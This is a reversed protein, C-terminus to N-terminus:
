INEFKLCGVEIFFIFDNLFNLFGTKFLYNKFNISACLVANAPLTENSYESIYLTNKHLYISAEESFKFNKYNDFSFTIKKMIEYDNELNETNLGLFKDSYKLEESFKNFFAHAKLYCLFFIIQAFSFFLKM